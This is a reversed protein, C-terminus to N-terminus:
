GLGVVTWVHGDVRKGGLSGESGLVAAGDAADEVARIGGHLVLAQGFGGHRDALGGLTVVVLEALFEVEDEFAGARHLDVALFLGNGRAIGDEDWRTGPMLDGGVLGETEEAATCRRVRM